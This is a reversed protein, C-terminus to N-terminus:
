IQNILQPICRIGFALHRVGLAVVIIYCFSNLTRLIVAFMHQNSFSRREANMLKFIAHQYETIRKYTNLRIRTTKTKQKWYTEVERIDCRYELQISLNLLFKFYGVDNKMKTKWKRKKCRMGSIKDEVLSKNLDLVYVMCGFFYNSWTCIM